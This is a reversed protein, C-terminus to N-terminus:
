RVSIAPNLRHLSPDTIDAYLLRHSLSSLGCGCVSKTIEIRQHAKKEAVAPNKRSKWNNNDSLIKKQRRGEWFRVILNAYFDITGPMNHM